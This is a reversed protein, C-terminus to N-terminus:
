IAFRRKTHKRVLCDYWHRHISDSRGAYCVDSFRPKTSSIGLDEQSSTLLMQTVGGVGDKDCVCGVYMCGCSYLTGCWFVPFGVVRYLTCIQVITCYTSFSQPLCSATSQSLLPGVSDRWHTCIKWQHENQKSIAEVQMCFCRVAAVLAIIIIDCWFSARWTPPLRM